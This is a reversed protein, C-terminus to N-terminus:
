SLSNIEDYLEQDWQFEMDYEGDHSLTFTARNWKAHDGETTLEHLELIADMLAFSDETDVNHVNLDFTKGKYEYVGTMGMYTGDCEIQLIAKDWMETSICTLTSNAILEYIEDINM